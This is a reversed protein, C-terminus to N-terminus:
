ALLHVVRPQLFSVGRHIGVLVAERTVGHEGTMALHQKYNVASIWTSKDTKMYVVGIPNNERAEHVKM